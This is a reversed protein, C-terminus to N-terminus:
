SPVIATSACVAVEVVAVVVVVVVVVVALALGVVEGEVAAVVAVSTTTNDLYYDKSLIESCITGSFGSALECISTLASFSLIIKM